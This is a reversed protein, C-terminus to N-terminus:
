RNKHLVYLFWKNIIVKKICCRIFKPSKIAQIWKKFIWSMFSFPCLVYSFVNGLANLCSHPFFWYILLGSTVHKDLTNFNPVHMKWNSQMFLLNKLYYLIFMYFTFLIFSGMWPTILHNIKCTKFHYTM